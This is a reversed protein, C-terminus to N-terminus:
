GRLGSLFVEYNTFGQRQITVGQFIAASKPIKRESRLAVEVAEQSGAKWSMGKWPIGRVCERKGKFVQCHCSLPSLSHDRLSRPKLDSCNLHSNITVKTLGTLFPAVFGWIGLDKLSWTLDCGSLSVWLEAQNRPCRIRRYVPFECVWTWSLNVEPTSPYHWSSTELQHDHIPLSCSSFM